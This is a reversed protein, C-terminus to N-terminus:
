RRRKREEDERRVELFAVIGGAVLLALMIIGLMVFMEPLGQDGLPAADPVFSPFSM